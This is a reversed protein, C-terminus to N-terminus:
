LWLGGLTAELAKPKRIDGDHNRGESLVLIKQMDKEKRRSMKINVEFPLQLIPKDTSFGSDSAM